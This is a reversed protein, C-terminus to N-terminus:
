ILNKILSYPLYAITSWAGTSKDYLEVSVRGNGIYKLALNRGDTVVYVALYGAPMKLNIKRTIKLNTAQEILAELRDFKEQDKQAIAAQRLAERSAAREQAQERLIMKMDERTVTVPHLLINFLRDLERRSLPISLKFSSRNDDFKNLIQGKENIYGDEILANWIANRRSGFQELNFISLPSKDARPLDEYSESFASKVLAKWRDESSQDASAVFPNFAKNLIEFAKRNDEETLDPSPTFSARSGDFLPTIAGSSDIYGAAQLYNWIKGWNRSAKKLQAKSIRNSGYEHFKSLVQAKKSKKIKLQNIKLLAERYSVPRLSSKRRAFTKKEKAPTKTTKLEPLKTPGEVPPLKRYFTYSKSVKSNDYEGVVDIINKGMVLPISYTFGGASDLAIQQGNIFLKDIGDTVKGTINMTDTFVIDTGVPFIIDAPSTPISKRTVNFYQNQREGLYDTTLTVANSGINLPLVTKFNGDADTSVDSSNISVRVEPRVKGSVEISPDFTSQTDQLSINILPHALFFWDKPFYVASLYFTQDGNVPEKNFCFDYQWDQTRYGIGFSPDTVIEDNRISQSLGARFLYQDSRTWEVGLHMLAKKSYEFDTTLMVTNDEWYYPSRIDGVIKASLGVKFYAPISEASINNWALAGGGLTQYPLLNYGAAGVDVWPLMRYLLGADLEWGNGTLDGQEPRSMSESLLAKFSAGLGINKATDAIDPLPLISDLRAGASLLLASSSVSSAGPADPISDMLIGIGFTAGYGTPYAEGACINNPDKLSVSIGKSWVLAGPNSFVTNADSPISVNTNGMGQYRAGCNLKLPIIGISQLDALAASPILILLLILITRKMILSASPSLNSSETRNGTCVSELRAGEVM